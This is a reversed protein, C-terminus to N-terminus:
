QSITLSLDTLVLKYSDLLKSVNTKTWDSTQVGSYVVIPEGNVPTTIHLSTITYNLVPPASALACYEGINESEGTNLILTKTTNNNSLEAEITLEYNSQNEFSISNCARSDVLGDIADGGCSILSISSVILFFRSLCFVFKHM